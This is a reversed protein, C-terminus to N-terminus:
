KRSRVELYVEEMRKGYKEKQGPGNYYGAFRTFDKNKLAEIMPQDLFDFLGKIQWRIGSKFKEFMEQVTPYGIRRHHFGMIQPAGMSVSYLAASDNLSRAFQLVRWELVQHGHFSQWEDRESERFFHGLWAKTKGSQQRCYKFHEHYIESHQEGWYSWFKHNEFRIIMRNANSKEFGEGASEVCLVAVSCAPEIQYQDSLTQLLGGYRNWTRAAQKEKQTGQEEILQGPELRLTEFSKATDPELPIEEKPIEALKIYNAHVFAPQEKFIIEYWDGWRGTVVVKTNQYNQGLISATFYPQSRINLIGATVLGQVPKGPELPKIYDRHIYASSNKFVIHLWDGYLATLTVLTNQRLTGIVKGDFGPRSRVNLVDATVKARVTGTKELPELYDGYVYGSGGNYRIGLWKNIQGTIEVLNNKSLRGTKKSNIDPRKRVNLLNATVRGQM